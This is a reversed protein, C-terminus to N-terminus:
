DHEVQLSFTFLHEPGRQRGDFPGANIGGEHNPEIVLEIRIM